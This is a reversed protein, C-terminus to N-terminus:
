ACAFVLYKEGAARACVCVCVCVLRNCRSYLERAVLLFAAGVKGARDCCSAVVQRLLGGLVLTEVASGSRRALLSCPTALGM